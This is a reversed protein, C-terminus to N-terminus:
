ISARRTKARRLPSRRRSAGNYGLIGLCLYVVGAAALGRSSVGSALSACRRWLDRESRAGGAVAVDAVSRHAGLSLELLGLFSVLCGRQVFSDLTGRPVLCPVGADLEVVVLAAHFAVAYWKVLWLVPSNTLYHWPSFKGGFAVYCRAAVSAVCCVIVLIRLADFLLALEPRPRRRDGSPTPTSSCGRATEPKASRPFEPPRQSEPTRLPSVPAGDRVACAVVGDDEATARGPALAPTRKLSWRRTASKPSHQALPRYQRHPTAPVPLRQDHYTIFRSLLHSHTTEGSAASAPRPGGSITHRDRRAATGNSTLHERAVREVTRQEPLSITRQKKSSHHPPQSKTPGTSPLPPAPAPNATRPQMKAPLSTAEQSKSQSARQKADDRGKKSSHTTRKKGSSHHPQCSKAHGTAAPQRKAPLPLSSARQRKRQSARQKADGHHKKSSHLTDEISPKISFLVHTVDSLLGTKGVGTGRETRSGEFHQQTAPSPSLCVRRRRSGGGAGANQSHDSSIPKVNHTPNREPAAKENPTEDASDKEDSIGAESHFSADSDSRASEVSSGSRGSGIERESEVDAM